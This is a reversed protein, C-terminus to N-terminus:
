GPRVHRGRGPLDTPGITTTSGDAAVEKLISGADSDVTYMVGAAENTTLGWWNFSGDQQSLITVIGTGLDIKGFCFVGCDIDTVYLEGQFFTIGSFSPRENLVLFSTAAGTSTDIDYLEGPTSSSIGILDAAHAPQAAVALAAVCIPTCIRLPMRM